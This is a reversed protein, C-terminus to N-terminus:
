VSDDIGRINSVREAFQKQSIDPNEGIFTSLERLVLSQSHLVSEFNERVELLERYTASKVGQLHSAYLLRDIRYAAITIIM